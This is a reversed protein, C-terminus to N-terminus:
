NKPVFPAGQEPHGPWKRVIRREGEDKELMLPRAQTANTAQASLPSPPAAYGCVLVAGVGTICRALRM